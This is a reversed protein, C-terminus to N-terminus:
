ANAQIEVDGDENMNELQIGDDELNNYVLRRPTYDQVTHFKLQKRWVASVKGSTFTITSNDASDAPFGHIKCIHFCSFGRYYTNQADLLQSSLMRNVRYNITHRHVQGPNMIITRRNVIMYRSNFYPIQSLETGVLQLTQDNPLPENGATAVGGMLTRQGQLAHTLATNETDRRPLVDYITFHLYGDTQNTYFVSMKISRLLLKAQRKSDFATGAPTALSIPPLLFLNNLDSAQSNLAGGNDANLNRGNNAAGMSIEDFAQRGQTSIINFSGNIDYIQPATTKVIPYYVRPLKRGLNKVSVNKGQVNKTGKKVKRRPRYKGYKSRKAMRTRGRSMPARKRKRFAANAYRRAMDAVTLAGSASFVGPNIGLKNMFLLVGLPFSKCTLVVGRNINM